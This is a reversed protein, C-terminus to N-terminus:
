NRKWIDKMGIVCYSVLLIFVSLVSIVVGVIFIQQSQFAIRISYTGMREILWANAYGDVMFHYKGDRVPLHSDVFTAQWQTSFRELFGLVFPAEANQISAIYETPSVRRFTVTPLVGSTNTKKMSFLVPPKYEYTQIASFVHEPDNSGSCFFVEAGIDNNNGSVLKMFRGQLKGIEINQDPVFYTNNSDKVPINIFKKFKIFIRRDDDAKSYDALVVYKRNWQFNRITSSICNYKKDPLTVTSKQTSTVRLVDPYSMKTIPEVNESVLSPSGTAEMYMDDVNRVVTYNLISSGEKDKPFAHVDTYVIDKTHTSYMFRLGLNDEDFIDKLENKVEDIEWLSNATLVPMRRLSERSLQSYTSLLVNKEFIAHRYIRLLSIYDENKKLQAISGHLKVWYHYFTNMVDEWEELENASYKKDQGISIAFSQIEALRKLSLGIYTDPYQGLAGKYKKAELYNKLPYFFSTPNIRSYPVIIDSDYNAYSILCSICTYYNISNTIPLDTQIPAVDNSFVFHNSDVFVSQSNNTFFNDYQTIINTAFIKSSKPTDEWTYVAWPGKEWFVHFLGSKKLIVEYMNPDETPFQQSDVATDKTLTISHIDMLNSLAFFQEFNGDRISQYISNVLYLEPQNLNAALNLVTPKDSLGNFIPPGWYNWTYTSLTYTNLPPVVLTRYYEPREREHKGYELVYEPITLMSSFPRGFTFNQNNFFPFHYLFICLIAVVRLGNRTFGNGVKSTIYFLSTSMLIAFTMYILPVFKYYGSRFAVFGPIREMFFIYVSGFPAHTGSAFFLGFVAISLLLLVVKREEKTKVLWYGSFALLPFLFSVFILLPNQTYQSFYFGSNIWHIDGQMRILNMFSANESIFKTWSIAAQVGGAIGVQTAYHQFFQSFFPLLWYANMLVFIGGSLGALLVFRIVFVNWVHKKYADVAYFVTVVIGAIIVAGLLPFGIVGGANFFLFVINGVVATTFVSNRHEYFKLCMVVVLPLLTYVSFTTQEGQIWFSFLFFNIVYFFVACLRIFAQEPKKFLYLVLSYMSVSMAFFWFIFTIKQVDYMGFGLFRVGALLGLLFIQGLWLTTDLGFAQSGLWTYLRQQFYPIFEIPYGSDYGIVMHNPVFWLLPILSGLCLVLMEFFVHKNRRLFQMM